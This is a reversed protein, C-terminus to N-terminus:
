MVLLVASIVSCENMVLATYNLRDLSDTLKRCDFRAVFRMALMADLREVEGDLLCSRLMAEVELRGVDEERCSRRLM